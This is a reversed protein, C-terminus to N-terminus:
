VAVSRDRRGKVLIPGFAFTDIVGMDIYEQATHEDSEYVRMSGDSFLALIELYPWGKNNAPASANAKIEGNRIIVGQTQKNYWRYGYFDDSIAFVADYQEAIKKPSLYNHGDERSGQALFAQPMSEATCLIETEFWTINQRKNQMRVIEIYLNQSIYYWHGDDRDAYVFPEASPDALFRSENLEPLEIQKAPGAPTSTPATTKAPVPTAVAVYGSATSTSGIPAPTPAVASEGFILAQLAPDATATQALGLSLQYDSIAAGLTKNYAATEAKATFFGLELLRQKLALVDDGVAGDGITRYASNEIEPLVPVAGSANKGTKKSVADDSFILAQLAPTAVGTQELGCAAEFAMVREATDDTYRNNFTNNSFYGLTYLRQKLALVDDGYNGNQLVRYEGEGLASVAFVTLAIFVFLFLATKRIVSGNKM